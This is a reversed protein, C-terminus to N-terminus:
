PHFHPQEKITTLSEDVTLEQFIEWWQGTHRMYALNFRRDGVYEMRAFRYEFSPSIAYPGPSAFTTCFYFYGRYWKTWIDILYNFRADVPPPQVYTPKLYTDVLVQAKQEVEAKLDPPLVPKQAKPPNPLWIRKKSKPM